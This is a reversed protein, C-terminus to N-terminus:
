HHGVVAVYLQRDTFELVATESNDHSKVMHRHVQKKKFWVYSKVNIGILNWGTTKSRSAPISSGSILESEGRESATTSPIGDGLFSLLSSFGARLDFVTARLAEALEARQKCLVCVRSVARTVLEISLSLVESEFGFGYTCM